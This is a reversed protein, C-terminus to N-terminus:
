KIAIQGNKNPRIKGEEREENTEKMKRFAQINLYM